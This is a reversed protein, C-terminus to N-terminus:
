SKCACEFFESNQGVLWTEADFIVETVSSYHRCELKKETWPVPPLGDPGSASFLTPSWSVVGHYALKKRTALARHAPANDQLFLVMQSIKGSRKGVRFTRWSCWCLCTIIQTSLKVMQFIVLKSSATKIGFFDLRPFKVASLVRFIKPFHSGSHRWKMSQQKTELGYHYFWTEDM